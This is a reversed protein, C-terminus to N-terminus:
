SIYMYNKIRLEFTDNHSTCIRIYHIKTSENLVLECLSRATEKSRMFPRESRRM